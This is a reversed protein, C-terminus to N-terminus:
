EKYGKHKKKYHTYPITPPCQSTAQENYHDERGVTYQPFLWPNPPSSRRSPDGGSTYMDDSRSPSVVPM